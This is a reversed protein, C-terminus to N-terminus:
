EEPALHGYSALFRANEADLEAWEEWTHAGEELAAYRRLLAIAATLPDM